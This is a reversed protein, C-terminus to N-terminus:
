HDEYYERKVFLALKEDKRLRQLAKNVYSRVVEIKKGTRDMIEDYTLHGLIRLLAVERLYEPLRQIAQELIQILVMVDDNLEEPESVLGASQLENLRLNKKSSRVHNVFQNRCVVSVWSAYRHHSRITHRRKVIREFTNAVLLDFDAPDLDSSRSFKVLLNRWVFCYTWLDVIKQADREGTKLWTLYAENASKINDIHFPLHIVLKDLKTLATAYIM